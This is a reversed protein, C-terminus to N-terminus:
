DEFPLDFNYKEALAIMSPVSKDAITPLAHIAARIFHGATYSIAAVILIFMALTVWKYPIYRGLKTLVFFSFLLALLPSGLQLFGVLVLTIALLVYSWRTQKTM